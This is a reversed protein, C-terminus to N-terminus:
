MRRINQIYNIVDKARANFFLTEYKSFDNSKITRQFLYKYAITWIAVIWSITDQTLEIFKFKREKSDEDINCSNTAYSEWKETCECMFSHINKQFKKYLSNNSFNYNDRLFVLIGLPDDNSFSEQIGISKLDEIIEYILKAKSGNLEKMLNNYEDESLSFPKSHTYACLKKFFNHLEEEVKIGREDNFESISKTLKFQKKLIRWNPTDVEGVDWKSFYTESFNGTNDMIKDEDLQFFLAVVSLDLANRLSSCGAKFYGMMFNLIAAELDKVVDYFTWNLVEDSDIHTRIYDELLPIKNALNQIEEDDDYNNLGGICKNIDM